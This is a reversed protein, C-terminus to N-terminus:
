NKTESEFEELLQKARRQHESLRKALDLFEERMRRYERLFKEIEVRHKLLSINTKDAVAQSIVGDVLDRENEELEKNVESFEVECEKIGAEVEAVAAISEKEDQLIEGSFDEPKNGM